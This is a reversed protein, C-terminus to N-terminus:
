VPQYFPHTHPHPVRVVAEDGGKDPHVLRAIARYAQTIEKSTASEVVGLRKYFNPEQSQQLLQQTNM